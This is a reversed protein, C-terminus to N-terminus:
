ANVKATKLNPILTVLEAGVVPWDFRVVGLVLQLHLAQSVHEEQRMQLLGLAALRV